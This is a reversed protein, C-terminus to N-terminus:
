QIVLKRTATKGEETVKVIYVGANLGSVNVANNIVNSKLVEKGLVDFIQISMNENATSTLFLTNGKLPNPYMKLGSINNDNLSATAEPTVSAWTEGVRIEDIEAKPTASSNRLAISAFATVTATGSNNTLTSVPEIGGLSSPNVWLTAVTPSAARDYKVVVLYTTGFNLDVPNETYTLTGTSTNSISLRYNAGSNSTTAAVRGFLSSISTGATGGLSIFYNNTGSITATLQTNDIINLLFSYYITTATSTFARNVDRPVTTNNGPLLVKNGTSAVLGTYSLSGTVLDITGTTTNSHTTWNNSGIADTTNTNGGIFGPVAYDFTENLVLQGYSASTLAIFLLTYLKKM